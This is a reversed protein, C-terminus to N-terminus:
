CQQRRPDRRHGFPCTGSARHGRPPPPPARLSPPTATRRAASSSTVCRYGGALARPPPRCPPPPTPLRRRRQRSPTRHSPSRPSILAGRRHHRDPRALGLGNAAARERTTAMTAVRRKSGSAQRWPKTGTHFSPISLSSLHLYSM